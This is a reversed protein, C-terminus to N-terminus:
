FVCTCFVLCIVIPFCLLSSFIFNYPSSLSYTVSNTYRPFTHCSRASHSLSKLVARSVILSLLFHFWRRFVEDNTFVQYFLVSPTKFTGLYIIFQKSAVTTDAVGVM